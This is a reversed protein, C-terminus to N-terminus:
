TKEDFILDSPCVQFKEGDGKRLVDYMIIEGAKNIHKGVIEVKTGAPTVAFLTESESMSGGEQTPITNM